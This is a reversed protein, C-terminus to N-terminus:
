TLRELEVILKSEIHTSAICNDFGLAQAHKVSMKVNNSILLCRDKIGLERKFNSLDSAGFNIHDDFLLVAFRTQKARHQFLRHIDEVQDIHSVAFLKSTLYDQTYALLESYQGILVLNVEETHTKKALASPELYRASVPIHFDMSRDRGDGTTTIQGGLYEFVEELYRLGLGKQSNLIASGPIPSATIQLWRQGERENSIIDSEILLTQDTYHKLENMITLYLHSILATDKYIEWSATSHSNLEIVSDDLDMARFESDARDILLLLNMAPTPPSLVSGTHIKHLLHIRESIHELNKQAKNVHEQSKADIQGQYEKLTAVQRKMRAAIDEFVDSNHQVTSETKVTSGILPKLRTLIGVFHVLAELIISTTLGWEFWLINPVIGYNSLLWGTHGITLTMRAVLYYPAYPVKKIVAYISIVFLISLTAFASLSLLAIPLQSPSAVFMLALAINMFGLGLLYRDIKPLYIPTELYLRSFYTIAAACGLASLNYVREQLGVFNPLLQFIYGHLALHLFAIGILLSGYVFYMPHRTKIYFFVNSGFLLLLIGLLFGTLMTDTQIDLTLKSLSKVEGILNIPSRSNIKLYLTYVPPANAPLPIIYDPYSVLRNSFPHAEGMETYIKQSILGPAYVELSQVRPAKVHLAIPHLHTIKQAIDIRLWVSGKVIGFQLFPENLPIFRKLLQESDIDALSLRGSEDIYYSGIYGINIEQNQDDLIAMRPNAQVYNTLAMLALLIITQIFSKTM